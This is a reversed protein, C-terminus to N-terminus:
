DSSKKVWVVRQFYKSPSVDMASCLKLFIDMEPQKGNQIRSLTAASVGTEDEIKRLSRGKYADKFLDHQFQHINFEWEIREM